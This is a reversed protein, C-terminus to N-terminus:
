GGGVAGSITNGVSQLLALNRQGRAVKIQYAAQRAKNKLNVEQVQAQFINASRNLAQNELGQKIQRSVMDMTENMVSLKSASTSSLGSSAAAAIQDSHLRRLQRTTSDVQRAVGIAELKNNYQATLITHNAATKYGREQAQLGAKQQRFGAVIGAMDIFGKGTDIIKENKTAFDDLTKMYSNITELFNRM